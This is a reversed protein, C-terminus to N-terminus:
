TGVADVAYDDLCPGAHGGHQDLRSIWLALMILTWRGPQCLRASRHICPPIIVSARWSGGLQCVHAHVRGQAARKAGMCCGSAATCLHQMSRGRGSAARVSLASKRPGQPSVEDAETLPRPQSQQRPQGQPAERPVLSVTRRPRQGHRPLPVSVLTQPLGARCVPCLWPGPCAPQAEAPPLRPTQWSSATAAPAGALRAASACCGCLLRVAARVHLAATRNLLTSTHGVSAIKQM